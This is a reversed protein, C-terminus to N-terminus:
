ERPQYYFRLYHRLNRRARNLTRCVTSESVGCLGGVERLTRKEGYYLQFYRRQVDTLEHVWAYHVANKLRRDIGECPEEQLKAIWVPDFELASESVRRYKVYQHRSM